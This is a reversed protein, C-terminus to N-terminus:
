LKEVGHGPKTQNRALLNKFQLYSCIAAVLGSAILIPWIWQAPILGLSAGEKSFLEALSLAILIIAATDIAMLTPSFPFTNKKLPETSM